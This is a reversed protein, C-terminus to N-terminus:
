SLSAAARAAQDYIGSLTRINAAMNSLNETKVGFADAGSLLCQDRIEKYKDCLEKGAPTTNYYIEKGKKTGMILDNKVLKKLSYTITHTDEINLMFCIDIRRQKNDRSYINHLTLVDTANLDYDGAAASCRVIWKTFANYFITLGFELESLQWAPSDALHKSSVIKKNSNPKQM